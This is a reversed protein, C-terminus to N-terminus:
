RVRPNSPQGLMEAYVRGFYGDTMGAIYDCVQRHVPVDPHECADPLREPHSVFFQFLEAVQEASRQREEVLPESHYVHARLFQKLALNTEQSEPTFCILRDPHQRVEEVSGVGADRVARATGEVLGTV